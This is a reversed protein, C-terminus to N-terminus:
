VKNEACCTDNNEECKWEASMEGLLIGTHFRISVQQIASNQKRATITSSKNASQFCGVNSWSNMRNREM